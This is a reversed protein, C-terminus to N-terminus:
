VGETLKNQIKEVIQGETEDVAPRIHPRPPDKYTGLEHFYLHLNPRSIWGIKFGNEDTEKQIGAVGAGTVQLGKASAISRSRNMVLDASEEYIANMGGANNVLVEVDKAAEDFGFSKVMISM